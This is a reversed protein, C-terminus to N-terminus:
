LTVLPMERMPMTVTPLCIVTPCCIPMVELAVLGNIKSFRSSNSWEKVAISCADQPILSMVFLTISPAHHCLTSLTFDILIITGWRKVRLLLLVFVHMAVGGTVSYPCRLISGVVM